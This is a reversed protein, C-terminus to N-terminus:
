RVASSDFGVTDFLRSNYAVRTALIRRADFGWRSFGLSHNGAFSFRLWRAHGPKSQVEFVHEGIPSAPDPHPMWQGKRADWLGAWEGDAPAFTLEVKARSANPLALDHVIMVFGDAGRQKLEFRNGRWRIAQFGQLTLEM